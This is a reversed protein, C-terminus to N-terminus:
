HYNLSKCKETMVMFEELPNQCTCGATIPHTGPREREREPPKHGDIVRATVVLDYWLKMSNGEWFPVATFV